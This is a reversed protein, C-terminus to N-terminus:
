LIMMMLIMFEMDIPYDNDCTDIIEDDNFCHIEDEDGNDKKNLYEKM